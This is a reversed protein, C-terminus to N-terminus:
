KSDILLLIADTYGKVLMLLAVALPSGAPTMMYLDHYQKLRSRLQDVLDKHEEIM